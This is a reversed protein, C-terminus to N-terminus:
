FFLSYTKGDVGILSFDPAPAGIELPKHEIYHPTIFATLCWLISVLGLLTFNKMGTTKFEYFHAIESEIKSGLKWKFCPSKDKRLLSGALTKSNELAVQDSVSYSYIRGLEM